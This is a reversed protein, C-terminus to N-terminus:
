IGSSLEELEGEIVMHAFEDDAVADMGLEEALDRIREKISHVQVTQVGASSVNILDLHVAELQIISHEVGSWLREMRARIGRSMREQHELQALSAEILRQADPDSTKSLRHRLDAEKDAMREPDFAALHARTQELVLIHHAIRDVLRDIEAILERFRDDDERGSVLSLIRDRVALAERFRENRSAVDAWPGPLRPDSPAARVSARRRMVALYTLGALALAAAILISAM